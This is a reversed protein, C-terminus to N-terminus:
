YTLFGGAIGSVWTRDRSQSSGESFSIAVWELIRAQSLGRISSGPPSYDMHYCFTLYSKTVSCYCLYHLIFDMPFELLGGPDGM